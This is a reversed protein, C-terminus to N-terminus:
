DIKYHVVLWTTNFCVDFTDFTSQWVAGSNIIQARLLLWDDLLMPARSKRV